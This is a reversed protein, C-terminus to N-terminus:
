CRSRRRAAMSRSRSRPTTSTTTAPRIRRGTRTRSCWSCATKALFSVPSPTSWKMSTSRRIPTGSSRSSRAPSSWSCPPRGTPSRLRRTSHWGTSCIPATPVLFFGLTTGEPGPGIDVEPVSVDNLDPFLIEPELLRNGDVVYYGLANDFDASERIFSVTLTANGEITLAGEPVGPSPPVIARGESRDPFPPVELIPFRIEEGPIIIPTLTLDVRWVQVTVTATRESVDIGEVAITYDFTVTGLKDPTFEVFVTERDATRFTGEDGRLGGPEATGQDPDLNAVRITLNEDPFIDSLDDNDLVHIPVPVGLQTTDRDGRAALNRVGEVSVTVHASDVAGAVTLSYPFVVQEFQDVFLRDFQSAPNFIVAVSDKDGAQFKGQLGQGVVPGGLSLEELLPSDRLPGVVIGVVEDDAVRIREGDVVRFLEDNEVLYIRVPTDSFTDESDDMAVVDFPPRPPENGDLDGLDDDLILESFRELETPPLPGRPDFGPGIGEEPAPSFGAGGGHEEQPPIGIPNAFLSVPVSRLPLDVGEVLTAPGAAALVSAFGVSGGSGMQLAPPAAAQATSVFNELVVVARNASAALLAAAPGGDAAPGLEGEAMELLLWPPWHDASAVALAGRAAQQVSVDAVVYADSEGVYLATLGGDPFAIQVMGTVDSLDSFLAQGARAHIQAIGFAGSGLSGFFEGGQFGEKITELLQDVSQRENLYELVLISPESGGTRHGGSLFITRASQDFVLLGGEVEVARTSDFPFSEEFVIEGGPKVELEHV